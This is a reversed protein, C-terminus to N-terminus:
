KKASSLPPAQLAPISNVARVTSRKPTASRPAADTDLQHHAKPRLQDRDNHQTHDQGDEKAKQHRTDKPAAPPKAKQGASRHRDAPADAAIAM